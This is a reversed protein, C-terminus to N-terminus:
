YMYWTSLLKSHVMVGDKTKFEYFRVLNTQTQKNTGGRENTHDLADSNHHDIANGAFVNAILELVTAKGVGTEGVLLISYPAKNKSPKIIGKKLPEIDSSFATLSIEFSIDDHVCKINNEDDSNTLNEDEDYPVTDRRPAARTNTSRPSLYEDGSSNSYTTTIPRSM